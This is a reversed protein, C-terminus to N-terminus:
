PNEGGSSHIPDDLKITDAFRLCASAVYLEFIKNTNSDKISSEYNQINEADSSFLEIHSYLEDFYRNDRVNLIKNILDILGFAKTISERIDNHPDSKIHKRNKGVIELVDEVLRYFNSVGDIEFGFRNKCLDE